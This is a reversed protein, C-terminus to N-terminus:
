EQAMTGDSRVRLTIWEYNGRDIVKEISRQLQRRNSESKERDLLVISKVIKLESSNMGKFVVYDIPHFLVKADDAHLRLPAFIPDLKKIARQANRRGKAAAEARMKQENEDINLRLDDLASDGAELEDKWDRRPKGRLFVRCDSLRFLNNCCPCVGFINRMTSFFDVADNTM